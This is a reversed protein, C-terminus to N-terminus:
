ANANDGEYWSAAAEYAELASKTDHLETEFLEGLNEKHTAARRFNGKACYRDIAFNISRVAAQPDDKRYAKYADTLVNAADDPENLNKNYIQAAQEFAKGAEVDPM